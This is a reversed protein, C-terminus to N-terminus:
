EFKISIVLRCRGATQRRKVYKQVLALIFDKKSLPNKVDNEKCESTWLVYANIIASDICWFFIPLYWKYTKLRSSYAARQQDAVDCGGMYKNYIDYASISAREVRGPMGTKRRKISCPTMCNAVTTLMCCLGSDYWVAAMLGSPSCRWRVDGPEMGRAGHQEGKVSKPHKKLDNPIGREDRVTGVAYIGIKLLEIFLVVSSFLNDMVLIHGLHAIAVALRLM